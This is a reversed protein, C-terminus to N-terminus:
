ALSSLLLLRVASDLSLLGHHFRLQAMKTAATITAKPMITAATMTDLLPPPLSLLWSLLELAADSCDSAAPGVNAGATTSEGLVVVIGVVGGGVWLGLVVGVTDGVTTGM